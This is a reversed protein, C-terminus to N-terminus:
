LRLPVTLFQQFSLDSCYTGGVGTSVPMSAIDADLGLLQSLVPQWDIVGSQHVVGLINIQILRPRDSDVPFLMGLRPILLTSLPIGPSSVM